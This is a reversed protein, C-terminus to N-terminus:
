PQPGDYGEVVAVDVTSHDKRLSIAHQYEPSRYCALATDFDPFEIVILRSRCAGEVAEHRGGRIVFRGGYKRFAIQNVALYDKYGDPNTVDVQALWYGKAM